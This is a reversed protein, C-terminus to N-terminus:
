DRRLHDKTSRPLCRHHSRAGLIRHGLLTLPSEVRDMDKKGVKVAEKKSKMGNLLTGNPDKSDNTIPHDNKLPEQAIYLDFAKNVFGWLLSLLTGQVVFKMCLPAFPSVGTPKSTKSLSIFYKSFSYYYEWIAYRLGAFYVAAGIAAVSMTMAGAKGAMHFLQAMLIHRPKSARRFLTTSEDDREKKPKMAPIEIKDYDKWLHTGSQAMALVFFLYRLYLPRENLKVREHMRGYETLGFKDSADSSWIYVESFFWASFTYFAITLITSKRLIYKRVTEASTQTQRRGVHWQAVRLVYIILAPLFLLM